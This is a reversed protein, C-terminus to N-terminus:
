RNLRSLFVSLEESIGFDPVGAEQHRQALRNYLAVTDSTFERLTDNSLGTERAVSEPDCRRDLHAILKSRLNYLRRGIEWIRSFGPDQTADPISRLTIDHSGTGFVSCVKIILSTYLAPRLTEYVVPLEYFARIM